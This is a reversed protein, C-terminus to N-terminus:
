QGMIACYRMLMASVEARTTGGQPDLVQAGKGHIVGNEVSWQLAKEAYLSVADADAFTELSGATEPEGAYRYLMVVLQERTILGDPNSGDSIGNKVAWEMGKEYWVTGGETDQDDMRALVTMLTARTVFADPTFHSESTGNFLDRSSVFDVYDVYWAGDVVDTFQKTNDFVKVTAGDEVTFTIGDETVVCTKLMKESGDDMILAAVTGPTVNEVPLEVKVPSAGGFNITIPAADESSKFLAIAPMSVSITKDSEEAAIMSEASITVEIKTIQDDTASVVAKSGDKYVTTATTAGTVHNTVTTTVSGDTNTVVETTTTNGSVPGSYPREQITLTGNTLVIPNYNGGEPEAVGYIAITYTGETAADPEIDEGNLQYKFAIKGSLVDAGVLGSITYDVNEKPASLDPVADNVYISRDIAAVTVTAKEITLTYSATTQAYLDTASATATITVTGAKLGLVEGTKSDVFAVAPESSTYTVTSGSVAGVATYTLHEGYLMSRQNEEFRFESQVSKDLVTVTVEINYPNYNTSSIVPVTITAHAGANEARDVLAFSLMTGNIVPSDKLVGHEDSAIVPAGLTYGEALLATLDATGTAGYRAEGSATDAGSYDVKNITFYVITDEFSYNGDAKAKVTLSGANNGANINVGYVIEYDSLALEIDGDNVKVASQVIQQGTYDMATVGNVTPMIAKQEIVYDKQVSGTYNSTDKATITLTYKGANVASAGSVDCYELIDVGDLMTSAVDQTQSQTNYTLPEGLAVVAGTIPKPAITFSATGQYITTSTECTVKVTYTGADTPAASSHYETGGRTTGSYEMRTNLTGEPPSYSPEPLTEGYTCGTQAVSLPAMAKDTVTVRIEGTVSTYEPNDDGNLDTATVTVIVTTVGSNASSTFIGHEDVNGEGSEVAYSVIGVAGSVNQSLDVTSGGRTVEATNKIVAPDTIPNINFDAGVDASGQYNGKGEVNVTGIGVYKNNEYTYVFDTGEILIKEGYTVVPKPTIFSDCFNSDEVHAFVADSLDCPLISWSKEATGVFNGTGCLQVVYTGADTGKDGTVSGYTATLGDVQVSLIGIQKEDGNYTPNESLTIVANSIDKPTISFQRVEEAVAMYNTGATASVGVWYTGADKPAPIEAGKKGADDAYWKVIVEGDGSYVFNLDKGNGCAVAEADYIITAPELVEIKGTIQNITFEGTVTALSYNGGEVDKVTVTATGANYNNAYTLTYESEPIVTDHDKVIVSTPIIEHGTYDYSAPTITVEPTVEKPVVTVPVDIHEVVAYNETDAPTFVAQFRNTGVDGVKQGENEWAWTGETNGEPNTLTIDSLTQGYIATLEAPPTCVPMQKDATAPFTHTVVLKGDVPIVEQASEENVSVMVSNAFSEGEAPSLVTKATYVTNAQATGSVTEGEVSDGIYWAIEGTYAPSECIVTTALTEGRQPAAITIAATSLPAAKINIGGNVIAFAVNEEDIGYVDDPSYTITIPSNGPEADALVDFSLTAFTSDTVTYNATGNIWLMTAPSNYNQPQQFQGGWENNYSINKLTLKTDDYAVKLKVSAIGPNNLVKIAIEVGTQGIDAGASGVEFTPESAAAAFPLSVCTFNFALLLATVVSLIRRLKKM